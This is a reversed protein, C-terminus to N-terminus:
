PSNGNDRGNDSAQTQHIATVQRYVMKLAAVNAAPVITGGNEATPVCFSNRAHRQGTKARHGIQSHNDSGHERCASRCKSSLNEGHHRCRHRQDAQPQEIKLGEHDVGKALVTEGRRRSRKAQSSQDQDLSQMAADGTCSALNSLLFQLQSPRRDTADEVDASEGEEAARNKYPLCLQILAQAKPLPRANRDGSWASSGSSSAT